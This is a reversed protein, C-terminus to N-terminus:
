NRLPKGTELMAQIRAVSAQTGCLQIFVERELEHLYDESVEVASKLNGGTMIYAIKEAILRDHDSIQGAQHMWTVEMMLRAFGNEGLAIIKPPTPPAYGAEALARARVKAEHLLRDINWCIGDCATLFGMKKAEFANNSRKGMALTQFVAKLRPFPDEEPLLNATARATMLTTGGGAPILGVLAEPLGIGSEVHAHVYACPLMVECGGGLAYGHVAAVVPIKSYKMRKSLTQLLILGEDMRMWEKNGIYELFLKLNFGASYMNGQNGVVLAAFNREALEIVELASSMLEPTLVAAKTRFELLAVEEGMDLMALEPTEMVTKGAQKLDNIIVFQPKDPVPQYPADAGPTFVSKRGDVIKYFSSGGAEKLTQVLAPTTGVEKVFRELGIADICEFPGLEWNYGMRMAEDLSPIDYAVERMINAAYAIPTLFAERVFDGYPAPMQLLANLREGAPAKQLKPDVPLEPETRPRYEFTEFDLTLIQKGERKYFGMGTKEGLRGAEILRHWLEPMQLNQIYEDEPLRVKQNQVINNSIDLGVLDALRFVGSRPRGALPGLLLDAEEPQIGHRIASSLACMLAYVGIRTTIFGPKDKALVVRKGVVIEFFQQLGAAVAPDTHATPVLELLRMQRPPNFFHTGIFRRQVDGPLHSSMEEIGLGSTNSSLVCHPNVRKAVESWLERKAEIQEIIAEVVWDASQVADIHKEVNGTTIREADDPQFLVNNKILRELGAKALDEKDLLTVRWGIGAMLGAIGAGMTGAGFVVVHGTRSNRNLM